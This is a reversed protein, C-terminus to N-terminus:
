DAGELVPEAEQHSSPRRREILKQNRDKISELYSLTEAWAQKAKRVVEITGSPPPDKLAWLGGLDAHDISRRARGELDSQWKITEEQEAEEATQTAATAPSTERHGRMLELAQRKTISPNREIIGARDPHAALERAVSYSMLERGPAPIEKWARYVDRYREVTCVAIGIEAAFRKLTNDGYRPELKDALEGLRMQGSDFQKLIKQAEQVADEYFVVDRTRTVPNNTEDADKTIILPAVGGVPRRRPVPGAELVHVM